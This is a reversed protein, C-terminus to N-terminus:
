TLELEFTLVVDDEADAVPHDLADRLDFTYTGDGQEDVTAVFVIRVGEPLGTAADIPPSDPGVYGVIMGEDPSIYLSIHEGRSTGVPHDALAASSTVGTFSVDGNVITQANDSYDDPGWTINLSGSLAATPNPDLDGGAYSDGENGGTLIEEDVRTGDAVEFVPIDNTGVITIQVTTPTSQAGDVITVTFQLVITEGEALFDITDNGLAYTWNITGNSTATPETTIGGP